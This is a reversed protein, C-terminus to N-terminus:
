RSIPALAQCSKDPSVNILRPAIDLRPDRARYVEEMGGAWRSLWRRRCEAALSM